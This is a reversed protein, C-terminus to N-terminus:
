FLSGIAALAIGLCLWLFLEIYGLILGALAIGDGKMAEESERIEQRAKHGAVVAVISGIFVCGLVLASALSVIATKNIPADPAGYRSIPSSGPYPTGFNVSPRSKEPPPAYGPPTYPSSPRPEPEPAPDVQRQSDALSNGCAPCVSAGPEQRTGCASCYSM